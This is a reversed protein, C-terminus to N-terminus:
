PNVWAAITLGNTLHLSPNDAVRVHGGGSLSFAQGFKGPAFTAGNLLVGTNSGVVDVANSEAPWWSVLGPIQLCNAADSMYAYTLTVVSIVLTKLFTKM